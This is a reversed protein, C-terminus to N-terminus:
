FAYNDEEDETLTEDEELLDYDYEDHYADEVEWKAETSLVDYDYGSSEVERWVSLLYKLENIRYGPEGSLAVDLMTTYRTLHRTTMHKLIEKDM